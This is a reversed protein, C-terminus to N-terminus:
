SSMVMLVHCMGKCIMPVCSRPLDIQDRSHKTGSQSRRVNHGPARYVKAIGRSGLRDDVRQQPWSQTAHKILLPGIGMRPALPLGQFMRHVTERNADQVYLEHCCRRHYSFISFRILASPIVVLYLQVHM